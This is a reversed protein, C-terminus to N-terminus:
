PHQQDLFQAKFGGACMSLLVGMCHETTTTVCFGYLVCMIEKCQINVCLFTSQALNKHTHKMPSACLCLYGCFGLLSCWIGSASNPLQSSGYPTHLSFGPGIYSYYTSKGALGDRCGRKMVELPPFMNLTVGCDQPAPEASLASVMFHPSIGINLDRSSMNFLQIFM